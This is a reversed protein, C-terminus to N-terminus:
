NIQVIAGKLTLPGDASVQVEADGSLQAMADSSLQLQSTASVQVQPASAAVKQQGSLTITSATITVGDSTMEIKSEGAQLTIKKGDDALLTVNDKGLHLKTQTGQLVLEISQDAAASGDNLSVVHGLRSTLSRTALQGSDDIKYTGPITTKSSFLGGLVVPHRPDDSEFGVLVEDQVEPVFVSGRDAGGGPAAVRAWGSSASEGDLTPYSVKVRGTKDPDNLDTVVATTLGSTRLTATARRAGGLVDALGTPHRDGSWFRTTWGTQRVVHEVRTVPYTGALPGFGKVTVKAGLSIAGTGEVMGEAQVARAGFHNVIAQSVQKGEATSDVPIQGTQVTGPRKGAFAAFSSDLTETPRRTQETVVQKKARDWGWVTAEGPPQISARAGFALLPYGGDGQEALTTAPGDPVHDAITLKTGDEATWWWCGYRRCVEDLLDLVSGARPFYPVAQSSLYSATVQSDVQLGADGVVQRIVDLLSMETFTAASLDRGLVWSADLATVVVEPLRNPPQEVALATITGTFITRSDAPATLRLSSGGDGLLATTIDYGNDVFRLTCRAPVMFQREVRIETLFQASTEALPEGNLSIAPVLNIPGADSM